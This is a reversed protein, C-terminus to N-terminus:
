FADAHYVFLFVVFAPYVTHQKKHSRFCQQNIKNSINLLEIKLLLHASTISEQLFTNPYELCTENVSSITNTKLHSFM